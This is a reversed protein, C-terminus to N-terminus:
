SLVTVLSRVQYFRIRDIVESLRSRALTAGAAGGVLAAVHGEM